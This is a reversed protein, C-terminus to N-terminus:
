FWAHTPVETPAGGIDSFARGNLTYVQHRGFENAIANIRSRTTPTNWGCLNFEWAGKVTRAICSKYLYVETGCATFQVRTNDKTWGMRISEPNRIARIMEQEIKRM